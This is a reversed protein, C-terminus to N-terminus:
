NKFLYWLPEIPNSDPSKPPHTLSNIGVESRACKVLKSRHGPAGDEVVFMDRDRETEMEKVFERLPGRLVQSVYKSGDM